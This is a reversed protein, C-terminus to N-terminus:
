QKAPAAVKSFEEAVARWGGERKAYVTLYRLSYPAKGDSPQVTDTGHIVATDGFIHVTEDSIMQSTMASKLLDAVFAAKDRTRGQSDIVIFRDDLVRDLFAANHKVEADAWQRELALLQKEDDGTSPAKSPQSQATLDALALGIVVPAFSRLM